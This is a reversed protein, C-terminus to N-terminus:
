LNTSALSFVHSLVRSNHHTWGNDTSSKPDRLSVRETLNRLDGINWDKQQLQHRKYMIGFIDAISENIAGAEGQNSLPNLWEIVGHTFEHAVVEPCDVYTDNFAFHETAQITQPHYYANNDEFNELM